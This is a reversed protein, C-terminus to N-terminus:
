NELEHIKAVQYHLVKINGVKVKQDLMVIIIIIIILM